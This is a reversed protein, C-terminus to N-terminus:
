IIQRLVLLAVFSIDQIKLIKIIELFFDLFIDLKKKEFNTKGLILIKM